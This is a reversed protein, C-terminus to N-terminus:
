KNKSAKSIYEDCFIIGKFLSDVLFVYKSLSLRGLVIAQGAQQAIPVFSKFDQVTLFCINQVPGVLAHLWPQVFIEQIPM